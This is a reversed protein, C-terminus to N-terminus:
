GLMSALEADSFNVRLWEKTFEVFDSRLACPPGAPPDPQVCITWRPEHGSMDTTPEAPEDKISEDKTEDKTPSSAAVSPEPPREDPSTAAVPADLWDSASPMGGSGSAEGLLSSLLDESILWGKGGGTSGKGGRPGPEYGGHRGGKSGKGGRYGPEYGGRWGGRWGGMSDNAGKGGSARGWPGSWSGGSM